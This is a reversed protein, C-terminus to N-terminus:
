GLCPMMWAERCFACVPFADLLRLAVTRPEPYGRLFRSGYTYASQLLALAVEADSAVDLDSSSKAARLFCALCGPSVGIMVGYVRARFRRPLRPM